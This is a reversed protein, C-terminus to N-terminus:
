AHARLVEKDFREKRLEILEPSPDQEITMELRWPGADGESFLAVGMGFFSLLFIMWSFPLFKLLGPSVGEHDCSKNPKIQKETVDFALTSNWFIKLKLPRQCAYM